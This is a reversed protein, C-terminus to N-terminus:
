SQAPPPATGEPAAPAAIRVLTEFLYSNPIVVEEDEPTTVVTNVSGVSAVEGRVENVAITRGAVLRPRLYYGALLQFVIPRAGLGLALGLALAFAALLITLATILLATDIGLVGLAMVAAFVVVLYQVLQGLRSAYTLGAGAGATGILGGIFQAILGGLLFVILAAIANPLYALLRELLQAVAELGMLRTATTVFSLFLLFFFTQAILQSLPLQIGIGRLTGTIGSREVLADVRLRRLVVGILWRILRALLYGVILLIIGNVLAPVQNIIDTGIQTLAQFVVRFDM